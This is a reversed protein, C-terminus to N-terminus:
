LQQVPPQQIAAHKQCLWLLEGGKTRVVRLDGWRKGEDIQAILADHIHRLAVIEPRPGRWTENLEHREEIELKGTPLAKSVDNMLAICNKLDGLISIPGAQEVIQQALQGIEKPLTMLQNNMLDLSTLATLQGIETPLTTLQNNM